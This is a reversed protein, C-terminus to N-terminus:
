GELTGGQIGRWGYVWENSMLQVLSSMQEHSASQTTYMPWLPSSSFVGIRASNSAELAM